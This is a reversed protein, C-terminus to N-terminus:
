TWLATYFFIQFEFSCQITEIRNNFSIVPKFYRKVEFSIM